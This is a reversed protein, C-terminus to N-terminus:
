SRAAPMLMAVVTDHAWCSWAFFGLAFLAATITSAVAPNGFSLIAAVRAVILVFLTLVILSLLDVASWNISSM